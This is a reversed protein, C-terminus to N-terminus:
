KGILGLSKLKEAENPIATTLTVISGPVGNTIIAENKAQNTKIENAVRTPINFEIHIHNDHGEVYLMVGPNTTKFYSILENDNLFINQITISDKLENSLKLAMIFLEKNLQTSYNADGVVVTVNEKNNKIVSM